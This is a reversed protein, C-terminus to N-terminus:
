VPRKGDQANRRLVEVIWDKGQQSERIHHSFALPFCHMQGKWELWEGQIGHQALKQYFLRDDPSLIDYTAVLGHVKVGANRLVDFDEFLPSLEPKEMSLSGAWKRAVDDSMTKTLLPDVKDVELIEPNSNRLDVVPSMSFISLPMPLPYATALERAWWFGLVLALNGGSSDGALCVSQGNESAERVLTRTMERLIPLTVAAPSSPALPYSVVSIQYEMSLQRALEALLRWHDKSPPVQFGGGSFYYLRHSPRQKHHKQAEPAMDYIYVGEVQRTTIEVGVNPPDLKPSGKPYPTKPM